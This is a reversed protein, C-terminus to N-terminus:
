RSRRGSSRPSGRRRGGDRRRGPWRRGSPSATGRPARSPRGRPPRRPPVSRARSRRSSPWRGVAPASSRVGAADAAVGHPVVVHVVGDADGEGAIAAAVVDVVVADGVEGLRQVVAPHEVAPARAVAAPAVAARDAVDGVLPEDHERGVVVVDAVRGGPRARRVVVAPAEDGRRGHQQRRERRQQEHALLVALRRREREEDVVAVGLQELRRPLSTM